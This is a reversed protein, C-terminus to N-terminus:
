AEDDARVLDVNAFFVILKGQLPEKVGDGISTWLDQDLLEAVTIPQILRLDAVYTDNLPDEHPLPFLYRVKNNKITNLIGPKAEDEFASLRRLPAIGLKYDPARGAHLYKTWECDHAVVIVPFSDPDRWAGSPQPTWVDVSRYIDGQFIDDATGDYRAAADARSIYNTPPAAPAKPASPTM